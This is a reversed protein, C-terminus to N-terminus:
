SVNAMPLLELKASSKEWFGRKSRAGGAEDPHFAFIFGGAAERFCLWTHGGQRSQQKSRWGM